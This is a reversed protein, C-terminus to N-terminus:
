SGGEPVGEEVVWRAMHGVQLEAGFHHVRAGDGTEARLHYLGPPIEWVATEGPLVAGELIDDGWCGSRHGKVNFSWLARGTANTVVLLAGGEGGRLPVASARVQAGEGALPEM